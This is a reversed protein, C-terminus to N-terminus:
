ATSTPPSSTSPTSTTLRATAASNPAAISAPSSRHPARAVHEDGREVREDVVELVLQGLGDLVVLCPQAHQLQDVQDAGDHAPEDTVADHIM